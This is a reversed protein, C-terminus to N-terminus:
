FKGAPTIVYDCHILNKIKRLQKLFKQIQVSRGKIIIVELCHHHDLHVHQTSIINESFDHQFRTLKKSLSGTHHNYLLTVAGAVLNNNEWKKSLLRGRIFAAIAESRTPFGQEKVALDLQIALDTELSISLRQHGKL